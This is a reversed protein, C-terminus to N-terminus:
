HNYRISKLKWKDEKIFNLVVERDVHVDKGGASYFTYVSLIENEENNHEFSTQRVYNVTNLQLFHFTHIDEEEGNIELTNNVESVTINEATMDELLSYNELHMAQFINKSIADIDNRLNIEQVRFNELEILQQKYTLLDDKLLTNENELDSIREKLNDNEKRENSVEQVLRENTSILTDLDETQDITVDINQDADTPVDDDTCGSSLLLGTIFVTYFVKKM